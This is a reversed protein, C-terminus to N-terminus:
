NEDAVRPRLTIYESLANIIHYLSSAKVPQEAFTGNETLTDLWLGPKKTELYRWL